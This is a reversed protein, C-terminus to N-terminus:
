TIPDEVYFYFLQRYNSGYIKSLLSNNYLVNPDSTSYKFSCLQNLRYQSLVAIRGRLIGNDDRSMYGIKCGLCTDLSKLGEGREYCM